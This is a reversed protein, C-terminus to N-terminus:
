SEQNMIIESCGSVVMNYNTIQFKIVKELDSKYVSNSSPGDSDITSVYTSCVEKIVKLSYFFINM